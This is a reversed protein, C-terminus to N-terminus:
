RIQRFIFLASIIFMVFEIEIRFGDSSEQPEESDRTTSTGVSTGVNPAETPSENSSAIPATTPSVTPSICINENCGDTGANPDAIYIRTPDGLCDTGNYSIRTVNNISQDCEYKFSVGNNNDAFCANLALTRSEYYTESCVGDSCIENSTCNEYQNLQFYDCDNPSGECNCNNAATCEAALSSASITGVCNETYYYNTNITYNGTSQLECSYQYSFLGATTPYINTSSFCRELPLPMNYAVWYACSADVYSLGFILLLVIVLMM